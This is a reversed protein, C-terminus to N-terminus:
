YLQQSARQWGAAVKSYCGTAAGHLTLSSIRLPLREAHRALRGHVMRLGFLYTAPLLWGAAWLCGTCCMHLCRCCCCCCLKCAGAAAAAACRALVPLLLLLVDQLCRCCCCCMKCAGAAAAACRALVPLLLLLLPLM